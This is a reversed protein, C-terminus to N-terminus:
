IFRTNFSYRDEAVEGKKLPDLQHHYTQQFTPGAMAVISNHELKIRAVKHNNKYVSFNRDQGFSYILVLTLPQDPNDQHKGRGGGNALDPSYHVVNCNYNVSSAQDWINTYKQYILNSFDLAEPTMVSQSYHSSPVTGRNFTTDFFKPQHGFMKLTPQKLDSTALISKLGLQEDPTLANSIYRISNSTDLDTQSIMQNRPAM